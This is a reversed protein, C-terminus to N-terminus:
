IRTRCLCMGPLLHECVVVFITHVEIYVFCFLAFNSVETPHGCLVTGLAALAMLVHTDINGSVINRGLDALAPPGALAYTGALLLGQYSATPALASAALFLIKGVTPATGEELWELFRWIGKTEKEEQKNSDALAESPAAGIRGYEGHHHHHPHQQHHQDDRDLQHSLGDVTSSTAVAPISPQPHSQSPYLHHHIFSGSQAATRPLGAQNRATTALCASSSGTSRKNENAPKHVSIYVKSALSRASCIRPVRTLLSRSARAVIPACM